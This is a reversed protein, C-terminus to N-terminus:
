RGTIRATLRARRDRTRSVKAVLLEREKIEIRRESAHLARLLKVDMDALLSGVGHASASATATTATTTSPAVDRRRAIEAAVDAATVDDGVGLKARKAKVLARVQLLTRAAKASHMAKAQKLAHRLVRKATVRAPVHPKRQQKERRRGQVKGGDNTTPRSPAASTTATTSPTTAQSAASLLRNAATTAPKSTAFFDDGTMKPNKTQIQKENKTEQREKLVLWALPLLLRNFRILLVNAIIKNHQKKTATRPASDLSSVAANCCIMISTLLHSLICANTQLVLGLLRLM